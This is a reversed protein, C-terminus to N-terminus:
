LPRRAHFPIDEMYKYWTNFVETLPVERRRGVAMFRTGLREFAM